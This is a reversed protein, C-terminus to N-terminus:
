QMLYFFMGFENDDVLDIDVALDGTKEDIRMSESEDEVIFYILEACPCPELKDRCSRLDRDHAKAQYVATNSSQKTLVVKASKQVFRPM